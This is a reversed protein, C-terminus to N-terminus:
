STEVTEYFFCEKKDIFYAPKEDRDITDRYIIRAPNKWTHSTESSTLSCFCYVWSKELDFYTFLYNNNNNHIFKLM